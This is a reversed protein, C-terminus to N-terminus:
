NAILFKGSELLEGNDDYIAFVYNGVALNLPIEIWNLYNEQKYIIQGSVSSVTFSLGETKLHPRPILMRNGDIFPVNTVYTNQNLNAELQKVPFSFLFLGSQRDSLLILNDEEFVFVGWAGNMKFNSNVPYTDYSGIERVPLVSLDFIRLGENYYACFLLNELLVLEHPINTNYHATGFEQDVKIDALNDLYCLKIKTGETEDTFAYQNHSDAIYGSHNYGQNAYFDLQGLLLPMGGSFNYIRLGDYGCNLFATDNVVHCDHVYGVMNFDSMLEPFEPDALSFIKMAASNTGCAYMKAHLTDIFVTHATMFLLDSDYILSVSDPLYSLDMIQLSSNGEDCVAYLYNQYISYDRNEVTVHQYRGPVFDVFQLSKNEIRLIHAGANSGIVAYNESDHSFGFVENFRIKEPSAVLTTDTWNDLFLINKQDQSLALDNISYFLIITFFVRM